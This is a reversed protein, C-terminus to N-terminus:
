RRRRGVLALLGGLVLMGRSPEPVAIALVGTTFLASTDWLLGGTLTPLDYLISTTPSLPTTLGSWDFLKWQDGDAWATMANPNSVKLVTDASLSVTGLIVALDAASGIGTNNGSGAGSFLDFALTSGATLSLTGTGSTQLTLSSASTGPQYPLETGIQLTAGTFTISQDVAPAIRGSGGLVAGSAVTVAGTGTASGTTNTVLLTGATVATGGGHTSGGTITWAGTGIKEIRTLITASANTISVIENAGENTGGLRFLRQVTNSGAATFPATFKVTGTGTNELVATTSIVDTAIDGNSFNIPRNTVSNTDGIYRLTSTVNVNQASTTGTSMDIIHSTSNIDGTGLSSAVGRDALKTVEITAQYLTTKGNFTNAPGLQLTGSSSTFLHLNNEYQGTGGIMGNRFDSVGSVYHIFSGTASTGGVLANGTGTGQINLGGYQTVAFGTSASGLILKGSTGGGGGLSFTAYYLPYSISGSVTKVLQLSGEQIRTTGTYDGSTYATGYEYILRGAGTKTLSTTVATGVGDVANLLRSTITLPADTNNQHIILESAGVPPRIGGGSITSVNAGVNPTVLIGNTTLILGSANQTITTAQPENFRLTSTTTNASLTTATIGAAINAHGTLATATSPTYGAGGSLSSLGVISRLGSVAASTAAWDSLGVTAYPVGGTGTLITNDTGSSTKISGTTPLDFRATAGVATRTIGGLNIEMSGTTGSSVATVRSSGVAFTTGSFAQTSATDTKGTAKLTGGGTGGLTLAAATIGNYLISTAPATAASFDLHLTGNSVSTAGSANSTGKLTLTGSGEKILVGSAASITGVEFNGAGTFTYATSGIQAILGGTLILTGSDSTFRTSSQIRVQPTITNTGSLNRIAGDMAIGHGNAQITEGLTINGALNLSAGGMIKTIGSTGTTGLAGNSRVELVGSMVSVVGGFTNTGTLVTRGTGNIILSLAGTGNNTITAGVTLANTSSMNTLLLQAVSNDTTGATLISADGATGFTLAQAGQIIQIGGADSFRLTKGALDLTRANDTDTMSLTGLKTVGPAFAVGGTSASSLTLDAVTSWGPLAGVETGTQYALSGTFIGMKGNALGAWGATAGDASRYTAWTGVLGNASGGVTGTVQGAKAATIAVVGSGTRSIAGLDVSMSGGLGSTLIIANAAQQVSTAGFRQSNAEGAAGVLQLDTRSALGSMLQLTGATTTGNYLIDTTPANTAAFNLVNVGGETGSAESTSTHGGSLVRGLITAGTYTSAGTYTTILPTTTNTPSNATRSFAWSGGEESIGGNITTNLTNIHTHFRGDGTLILGGNFVTNSTDVRIAGYNSGGVGAFAIPVSWPGAGTTNFTSYTQVDVRSLSSIFSNTSVSLYIGSTVGTASKLTLTGTLDPNASTIRAFGLSTGSTKQFTLDSGKLLSGFTIWQNGTSGGSAANAISIVAGTGVNLTGGTFIHSTAGLPTGLPNFIMGAVKIEGDVTITGGNVSTANGFEAIALGSNDWVDYSGGNSWRLNTSITNNTSWTGNGNQLGPTGLDGDFQYTQASAASTMLLLYFLARFITKM